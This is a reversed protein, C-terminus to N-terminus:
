SLLILPTSGFVAIAFTEIFNGPTDTSASEGDGIREAGAEQFLNMFIGQRVLQRLGAEHDPL